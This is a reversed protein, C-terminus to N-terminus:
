TESAGSMLAGGISLSCYVLFSPLSPESTKTDVDAAASIYSGLLSLRAVRRPTLQSDKLRAGPAVPDTPRAERQRRRASGYVEQERQEDGEQVDNM